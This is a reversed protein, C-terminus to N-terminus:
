QIIVTQLTNFNKGNVRVVYVSNCIRKCSIGIDTKGGSTNITKNLIEKGNLSMISISYNGSNPANFSIINKSEIQISQNKKSNIKNSNMKKYVPNSVGYSIWLYGALKSSGGVENRSSNYLLDAKGDYNYDDIFMWTSGVYDIISGDEKRLYEPNAFVPNSKTGVNKWFRFYGLSDLEKGVTIIDSLSDGDLDGITFHSYAPATITDNDESMLVKSFTFEHSEATGTNLYLWILGPKDKGALPHPSTYYSNAATGVLLDLLGDNNWDFLKPICYRTGKKIENGEHDKVKETGTVNGNEDRWFIYVNNSADGCLM